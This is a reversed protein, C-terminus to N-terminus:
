LNKTIKYIFNNNITKQTLVSEQQNGAAEQFFIQLLPPKTIQVM